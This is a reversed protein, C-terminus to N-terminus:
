SCIGPQETNRWGKLCDQVEQRAPYFLHRHLAAHFAQYARTEQGLALWAKGQWYHAMVPHTPRLQCTLHTVKTWWRRAEATEGVAWYSDGLWLAAPISQMYGDGAPLWHWGKQLAAIAERHRGALTLVRGYHFWAQALCPQLLPGCAALNCARAADGYGQLWLRGASTWVHWHGPFQQLMSDLLPSVELHRGAALLITCAAQLILADSPDLAHAQRIAAAAAATAGSRYAWRAAYYWGRPSTPHNSTFRRLVALAKAWAGRAMHYHALAEYVEPSTPAIHFARRLMMRIQKGTEDREPEIHSLLRILFTLALVNHPELELARVARQQAEISRGVTYLATPSYTLACIDDPNHQLAQEFAQLAEVPQATRLHTLALSQWHVVHQPADAAAATFAEVASRPQQRCLALLGQVHHRAADTRTCSLAQTYATIAEHNRGLGCLMEGLRLWVALCDPRQQVVQRSVIIAQEWQGMTYLLDALVRRKKWGRPHRQVYTCLTGLKQQQRAPKHDLNLYLCREVGHPLEVCIAWPAMMYAPIEGDAKDVEFTPEPKEEPSVIISSFLRLAPLLAEGACYPSLQEQLLARAQQFRKRANTPLIHLRAAIDEYSLEHLLRLVAVERLRTPLNDMAHRIIVVTEQRLLTDEVSEQVSAGAGEAPRVHEKFERLCRTHRKRERWMEMCHNHLLRTLVGKVSRIDSASHALYQCAKLSSSSLADEADAPNGSMWQLGHHAFLDARHREWLGWFAVTDGQALRQLSHRDATGTPGGVASIADSYGITSVAM